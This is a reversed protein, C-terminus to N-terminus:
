GNRGGRGEMPSAAVLDPGNWSGNERLDKCFGTFVRGTTRVFWACDIGSACPSVISMSLSSGLEGSMPGINGGKEDM